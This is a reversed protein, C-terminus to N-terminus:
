YDRQLFIGIGTQGDSGLQGKLTIHPAIDLNISISSKGGQDVIVETYAKETLYKGLTVAATGNGDATIDLNDLGAQKRLNGIVGVGGRGALTAVAGALQIAQFPTLSQLARDFLLRALVEEQPLEPNSTFTVEPDNAAGEIRVSATIGDSEVSAVIRLYPVLAGQMQLLAESLNLRRGLIDLRGRILNFSGSPSVAATTGRLVLSGGLEADLGRGRIFIQNPATIRLNLLYGGGGGSGGSAAGGTLGARARTALSAMAENVHVLGPLAGDIGFGTSPIRLETRGLALDGAVVAAGLAPGKFTVTGDVITTYLQPDRQRVGEVSIALDATYPPLIAVSGTIGLQGGTSVATRLNVRASGNSLQATGAIGTIGFQQGPDALRGDAMTVPGTLSRLSIPGVMRLDFRLLGSLSRPAVIKNALGASATGVVSLNVTSFNRALRGAVRADIQAPGRAGLDIQFGEADQRGTGEITLVGPFQPYLVGLDAIRQVIRLAGGEGRVTGSIQATSIDASRIIAGQPTLDVLATFRSAGALLIDAQTQGISLNSGAAEVTLLSKAIPGTLRVTGKLGGGYRPDLVGLTAIVVDGTLDAGEPTITGSVDASFGTTALQVRDVTTGTLDRRAAFTVTSQGGLLNDLAAIGFGLGQGTVTGSTQLAGTLFTNSFDTAFEAQGRLPMGALLSFRALDSATGTVSGSSAFGGELGGITVTGGLLYGDGQVTLGSLRLDAGSQWNVTVDGAVQNGLAQDLAPDVARFGTLDFGLQGEFRSEGPAQTIQGTGSLTSQAATFAPHNLDRLVASGTWFPGKARDFSIDLSGSGLLIPPDSAVPLAVPGDPLGVQGRLAFAEPAGGADLNLTGDLTLAQAKVAFAGLEMRGDALRRGKARLSVDPGFFEAYAPLFVPTPDGALDATFGQEGADEFLTVAGALRTVGDTKLSIDATFDDMPGSGVVSFEASPRGPVGLWSVAVGQAGERATLSLDLQRTTGNFQTTLNFVGEPGNDTRQLDFVARGEGGALSVSATLEGEVPQGLVQPGLVIRRAAITRIEVSIPLDPLTFDRAQASFGGSGGGSPIRTLAIEGASFEDIVIQGSVLASQSWDLVVDKATLWIGLDDAITMETMTARTSLAGSFGTITVVRGAGSLNEELFGTLFDKDSQQAVAALPWIMLMLIWLARM